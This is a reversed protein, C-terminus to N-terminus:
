FTSLRKDIHAPPNYVCFQCMRLIILCQCQIWQPMSASDFDVVFEYLGGNMLRRTHM